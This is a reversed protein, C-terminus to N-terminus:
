HDDNDLNLRNIKFNLTYISPASSRRRPQRADWKQVLKQVVNRGEIMWRVNNEQVNRTLQRVDEEELVKTDALCSALPLAYSEFFAIQNEHWAQAPDDGRGQV